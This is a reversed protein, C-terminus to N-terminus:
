WWEVKLFVAENPQLVLKEDQLLQIEKGLANCLIFAKSMQGVLVQSLDLTTAVGNLERLHLMLGNDHHTPRSSVLLVNPVDIKLLSGYKLPTEEHGAPLVRSLLPMRSAWGFQSAFGATTDAGSSISYSWKLEGEQSAKFNTTWYNNLVWSYIHNTEPQHKYYFRGTNIAGFQVLPIDNSVFVIQAHKNKVAAYHQITNWDSSTGELQNIGPRVVGGQTEFVLEGGPLRFPFAIYVGEASTVPLKVMSYHLELRKTKHYLRIEIHVGDEDACGPMDGHLFLSKWIPGDKMSKFEVNQLLQRSGELDVYVTDIKSSTYRELQHRNDLQEYILQGTKLSEKTDTLELELEKDFLQIIQGSSRDFKLDYFANSFHAEPSDESATQRSFGLIEIAYTKYGFAPVAEVWFAWYSGDSRSEMAQAQIENGDADVIRFAKGLPIIEHDIFLRVLGSREWNLTNFVLLTPVDSKPFYPQIFGMAKEKLMRSNMVADWAYSSKEAWQVMSNESMPESISEASGFTHENYFLIADQIDEIDHHIDHPLEAGMLSAMALLGTNAMLDEQTTRVAQTERMASGFGDAWWDPWAERHVPLEDAHNAELYEMFESAIALRIKPWEYHENWQKVVECAITSPPANDTIYGSFQFATHSFPYGKKELQDLYIALGNQFTPLDSSTLGLVNGHMYHESRYALLRKGSPSEWWFATPKEFPIRARHGHQGMIVYKIGTHQAYDAMAWGLGNVDNQMLTKVELGSELFKAVPQLQAALSAEDNIESHNFFMGTVEIRGEKVRQLLRDIQQQPRSKLYERVPWSAECTWRFKANDPYNDTQDCYDLAYDIYRLHEPLIETQPRTYGIDTHSHEILYVTWEKVAKIEINQKLVREKGISFELDSPEYTEDVPIYLEYANTGPRIEVNQKVRHLQIQGKTPSGIYTIDIGVVYFLEGEKKAVLEKQWVVFKEELKETFTMYWVNSNSKQGDVKVRVAQGPSLMSKPLRLSAFGMQDKHKDIKTVQFALQAGNENEVKWEMLDNSVPNSISFLLSGNVSVDFNRSDPTVDMGYAWIFTIEEQDFDLPVKETEWEIAQYDSQARSLLAPSYDNIPSHYHFRFGGLTNEYGQYPSSEQALSAMAIMVLVICLSLWKKM